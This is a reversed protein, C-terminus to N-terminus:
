RAIPAASDASQNLGAVITKALGLGGRQAMSQALYEDAMSMASSATQDEGTGMWGEGDGEHMSKLMQGILLAEFQSAAQRIKDPSNKDAGTATTTTSLVPNITM